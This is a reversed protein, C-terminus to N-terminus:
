LPRRLCGAYQVCPKQLVKYPLVVPYPYSVRTVDFLSQQSGVLHDLPNLVSAAFMVLPAIENSTAGVGVCM